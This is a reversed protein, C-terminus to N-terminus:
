PPGNGSRGIPRHQPHLRSHIEGSELRDLFATLETLDGHVLHPQFEELTARTKAPDYAARIEDIRRALKEANDEYLVFNPSLAPERASYLNAGLWHSAAWYADPLFIKAGCAQLECIPLGFSEASALLYISTRRYIERIEGRTYAGELITHQVGALKLADLQAKRYRPYDGRNQEFDVLARFEDGQDPYLTGDDLDLGILSYPQPGPPLPLETGVAAMLYWDYRELGFGGKDFIALDDGGLKTKEGRLLLRAWSDLTPLYHLDYNVIPVIPLRQRLVEINPFVSRSFSIPVNAVVVIADVGSLDEIFSDFKRRSDRLRLSSAAITRISGTDISQRLALNDLGDLFILPEAGCATLMRALGEAMPHIFSAKENALIAIRM